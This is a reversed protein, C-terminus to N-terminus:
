KKLRDIDCIYYKKWCIGCKYQKNVQWSIVVIIRIPRFVLFRFIARGLSNGAVKKLHWVKCLPCKKMIINQLFSLFLSLVLNKM